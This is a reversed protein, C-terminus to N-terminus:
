HRVACDDVPIGDQRRFGFLVPSFRKRASQMDSLLESEAEMFLRSMGNRVSYSFTVKKERKEGMDTDGIAAGSSAGGNVDLFVGWSAGYVGKGM